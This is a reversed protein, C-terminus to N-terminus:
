PTITTGADGRLASELADPLCIVVRRGRARVFEVAAEIKPQMSGPLFEGAALYREAQASTLARLPRRNTTMFDLYVADIDTLIIFTEADLERALLSSALDKDIVAEVGALTGDPRQVVPVGGGGLAIPLVDESLLARIAPLEIIHQPRPSAVVRRYGRDADLAVPYPARRAEEETFFGGVPKTPHQFAPDEPAVLVRTVVTATTKRVDARCLASDLAQSLLYGINGQSEAGCVDLPMPPIDHASHEHRLFITGVVPGNGHTIVAPTGLAILRVIAQAAEAAHRLQDFVTGADGRRLLANGGLAIVTTPTM